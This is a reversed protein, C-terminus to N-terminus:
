AMWEMGVGGGGGLFFSSCQESFHLPWEIFHWIGTLPSKTTPQQRRSLFHGGLDPFFRSERHEPGDPSYFHRTSRQIPHSISWLASSWCSWCRRSVWTSNDPRPAPWVSSKYILSAETRGKIVSTKLEPQVNSERPFKFICFLIFLCRRQVLSELKILRLTPWLGPCWYKKVRGLHPRVHLIM